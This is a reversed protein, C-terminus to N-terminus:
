TGILIGTCFQKLTQIGSLVALYSTKPNDPCVVNDTRTTIKGFDGEVEIEHSNTKYKPNTVIRIFLKDESQSALALTAAVNINQPFLKVAKEVGGEYLVTEKKIKTVDIGKQRFYPNDRFGTPPKRTTLTIKKIHVLSAAKIADLGAIAGSPLLLSCKNKKALNFLEPARLLKGVSMCLVSRKKLLAERIIDKTNIATVAEVMVQSDSIVESLSTKVCDASVKLQRALSFSKEENIDYIGSLVCDHRLEKTVARAIGSGIAGCGVIGVKIRRVVSM